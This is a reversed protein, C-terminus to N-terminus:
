SAMTAMAKPVIMIIVTGLEHVGISGEHSNAGM